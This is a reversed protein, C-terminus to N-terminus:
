GKAEREALWAKVITDILNSVTRNEEAAIKRLADLTSDSLRVNTTHLRKEPRPSQM